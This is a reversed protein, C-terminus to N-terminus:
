KTILEPNLCDNIKFAFIEEPDQYKNRMRDMVKNLRAKSVNRLTNIWQNDSTLIIYDSKM